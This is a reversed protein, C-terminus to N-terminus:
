VGLKRAGPTEMVQYVIWVLNLYRKILGVHILEAKRAVKKLSGRRAGAGAHENGERGMLSGRPSAPGM